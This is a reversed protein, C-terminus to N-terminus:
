LGAALQAESDILLNGNTVVKDGADLGALVEYFEDGTRGLLVARPTYYGGGKDLFILPGTGRSIVASRPVTLVPETKAIVHSEAYLGNFYKHSGLEGAEVPSESLEARLKTSTTMNDFSDDAFPKAGHLKIQATFNKGPASPVTVQLKQGTKLWPLDREYVTFEFWAQQSSNAMIQGGFHLTHVLPQNTVTETQVNVVSVTLDTLKVTGSPQNTDVGTEGEYIPVLNMGCIPCKGPKDSKIWPHMASQYYLIKRGAAAAPTPASAPSHSKSLWMGGAGALLVVLLLLIRKM